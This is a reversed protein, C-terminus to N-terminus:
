SHKITIKIWSLFSSVRTFTGPASGDTCVLSVIGAARNKCVLPGGSDGLFSARKIKPDGVCIATAKNYRRRFRSECEQDKQVTLEVEQLTDPLKGKPALMGWGAVHCVDGPKVHVNSRPLRLTRVAETRKARRELKLLMIDSSDDKFNYDPHPFAKAVPIIQQTGEPFSIDHAGLTVRMSSRMCHAATLVFNDKVLFGGCRYSRGDDNVSTIFAMYPRSHPKVEHGGIIEEASAGLTLLFTQLILVVAM